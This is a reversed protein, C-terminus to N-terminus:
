SNIIKKVDEEPTYGWILQAIRTSRGEKCSGSIMDDLNDSIDQVFADYDFDVDDKYRSPIRLLPPILVGTNITNVNDNNNPDSPNMLRTLMNAQATGLRSLLTQMEQTPFPLPLDRIAIKRTFDAVDKWQGDYSHLNINTPTASLIRESRKKQLGLMIKQHSTLPKIAQSPLEPVIPQPTIAQLANATPSPLDNELLPTVIVPSPPRSAISPPPRSAISPPPRSAISPPPQSAVITRPPDVRPAILAPPQPAVIVPSPHVDPEPQLYMIVPSSPQPPIDVPSRPQKEVVYPRTQPVDKVTAPVEQLVVVPSSPQPPVSSRPQSDHTPVVVYVFKTATVPSSPQQPVNVGSPYTHSKPQRSPPYTIIKLLPPSPRGFTLSGQRSGRSIRM